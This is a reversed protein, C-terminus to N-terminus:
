RRLPIQWSSITGGGPRGALSFSGGLSEARRAMNTLGRGPRTRGPDYGVGDDLVVLCIDDAVSLEVEVRSAKAHRAVNSLAERLSALLQAAADDGVQADIPGAFRVEPECGLSRRAESCIALVRGRVSGGASPAPQLAFVTTRLQRIAGDIDDVAGALRDRLDDDPASPLAAQLSLGVGFLGQIVTDHLDRAIRERDAAM